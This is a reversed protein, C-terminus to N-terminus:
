DPEIHEYGHRPKIATNVYTGMSQAGLLEDVERRTVTFYRYIEGSTFEVELVATDEDYGVSAIASSSVPQRRM